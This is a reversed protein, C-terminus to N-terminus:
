LDDAPVEDLLRKARPLDDDDVMVRRRLALLGSGYASSTHADFVLAEIGEGELRATLWSLLVPNDTRLLEKM